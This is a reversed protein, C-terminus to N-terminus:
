KKIQWIGNEGEVPTGQPADKQLRAAYVAQVDQLSTGNKAAIGKYIIMRDNNEDKVIKEASADTSKRVVVMGSNNEGAVGSQMLAFLSSYRARRRLAADELGSPLDGAYATNVMSDFFSVILSAPAAQGTGGTVISEIANIDDQVHQYVDLRMTVDVKIPEKPAQVKLSMCGVMFFLILIMFPKLHKM